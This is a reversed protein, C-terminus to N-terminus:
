REGGRDRPRFPSRVGVVLVLWGVILLLEFASRAARGAWAEVLDGTLWLNVLLAAFIAVHRVHSM